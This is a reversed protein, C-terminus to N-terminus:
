QLGALLLRVRNRIDACHARLIRARRSVDGEVLGQAEGAQGRAREALGIPGLSTSAGAVSAADSAAAEAGEALREEALARDLLRDANEAAAESQALYDEVLDRHARADNLSHAADLCRSAAAVLKEAAALADVEGTPIRDHTCSSVFNNIYEATESGDRSGSTSLISTSCRESPPLDPDGCTLVGWVKASASSKKLWWGARRADNVATRARPRSHQDWPEDPGKWGAKSM